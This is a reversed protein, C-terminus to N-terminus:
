VPGDYKFGNKPALVSRCNYTTPPAGVGREFFLVKVTANANMGCVNMLYRSKTPLDKLCELIDPNYNKM